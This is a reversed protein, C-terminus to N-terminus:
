KGNSLRLIESSLKSFGADTSSKLKEISLMLRSIELELIRIKNNIQSFEESTSPTILEVNKGTISSINNTLLTLKQDFSTLIEGVLLHYENIQDKIDDTKITKLTKNSDM